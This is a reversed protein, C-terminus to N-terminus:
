KNIFIFHGGEDGTDKIPNFKPTQSSNNIVPIKIKDYLQSSDFYPDSNENLAKLVYYAFVSHGDRGGDMVPEIGGSSIAQRSKRSDVESFYRVSNEFPISVTNGRFIDGSFCADAILLTHKTNIAGLFTQIDSNSIYESIAGTKSDVPVWYGKDMAKKFDGHGSYYILLNDEPKLKQVLYEMKALINARTAEQDYLTIFENFVYKTGLLRQVAKADNVANRLPTWFGSYQDIGIILAYYTGKIQLSKATSVNLGQLPDGGGRYIPEEAVVKSEGNIQYNTVSQQGTKTSVVMSVNNMGAQVNLVASFEHDSTMIAPAGNFTVSRVPAGQGIVGKISMAGEPASHVSGSTLAPNTILVDPVKSAAKQEEAYSEFDFPKTDILNPMGAFKNHDNFEAKGESEPVVEMNNGQGRIYIEDGPKLDLSTVNQYNDSKPMYENFVGIMIDYRGQKYIRYELRGGNPIQAVELKNLYVKFDIGKATVRSKRYFYITSYDQALSTLVSGSLAVYILILKLFKL